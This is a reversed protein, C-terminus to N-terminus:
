GTDGQPNLLSKELLGLGVFEQQTMIVFPTVWFGVNGAGDHEVIQLAGMGYGMPGQSYYRAQFAYPFGIAGHPIVFGEPGYGNTVDAFLRGGTPLEKDQYNAVNGFGDYIHLDVDNADTEWHLIFRCSPKKAPRIGARAARGMVKKVDSSSSAKWAALIIGADQKLLEKVGRFRGEPYRTTVGKLIADFAEAHQNAKLLAYAYLRHSSPHDAREEVAKAYTDVALSLGPEGVRELRQGAMRRMDARSPFLDIISGYARAAQVRNGKAEFVEGVAVLALIDGPAEARWRFAEERARRINGKKLDAMVSAMHGTYPKEEQLRARVRRMSGQRNDSSFLPPLERSDATRNNSERETTPQAETESAAQAIQSEARGPPRGRPAVARAEPGREFRYPWTVVIIGGDQPQPFTWRRMTRAICQEVEINGLTSSAVAATQVAGSPNILIRMTVRGELDPQSQLGQEYCRRVENRRRRAVRQIVSRSMSGKVIAPSSRVVPPRVRRRRLQGQRTRRGAMTGETSHRQAMEGQGVPSEGVGGGGRGTGRMTLGGYGFSEGVDNGRLAGFANEEDPPLESDTGFPSAPANASSLYSLISARSASKAMEREARQENSPALQSPSANSSRRVEEAEQSRALFRNEKPTDQWDRHRLEIGEEGVILIDALARRDIQFRRYDAETELVLLATFDSLVRYQKSLSVVQEGFEQKEKPDDLIKIQHSAMRIQANAAAREILPKSVARVPVTIDADAGDTFIVRLPKDIPVDAYILQPEGDQAGHIEAPWVWSAGPVKVRIKSATARVLKQAIADPPADAVGGSVVVGTEKGVGVMEKLALDDRIQGPIFADIRIMGRETLAAAAERLEPTGTKGATRMGDSVVLIREPAKEQALQELVEVLDSAGLPRRKRIREMAAADLASARGQFITQISQDFCIVRLDFDQNLLVLKKVLHMLNEVQGEFGPAVSASTDFLVTMESFKALGHELRPAVRAVALSQNRLGFPATLDLKDAQEVVYDATPIHNRRSFSKKRYRVNTRMRGEDDHELVRTDVHFSRVRPLGRIHLRYPQALLEESYSVIIEKEEEALIPFVRARFQNGAKKELLAPDRRQHLFSEYTRRAAAREVVEAEQWQGRIKMAFRSIAASPPLNIEFRGERTRDQDNKFKLHLETFALPGEIVASARLSVMELGTGDSATLNIPSPMHGRKDRAAEKVAGLGNPSALCACLTAVFSLGIWKTCSYTM